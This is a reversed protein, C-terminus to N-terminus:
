NISSHYYNTNLLTTDKKLLILPTFNIVGFSSKKDTQQGHVKYILINKDNLRNKFHNRLKQIKAEDPPRDKDFFGSLKTQTLGLQNLGILVGRLEKVTKKTWVPDESNLNVKRVIAYNWPQAGQSFVPYISFPWFEGKHTAALAAYVVLIGILLYIAKKIM